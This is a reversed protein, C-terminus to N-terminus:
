QPREVRRVFVVTLKGNGSEAGPPRVTITAQSERDSVVKWDAVSIGAAQGSDPDTFEGRFTMGDQELLKVEQSHGVSKLPDDTSPEPDILAFTASEIVDARVALLVAIGPKCGNPQYWLWETGVSAAEDARDCAAAFACCSVFLLLRCGLARRLGFDGNPKPHM